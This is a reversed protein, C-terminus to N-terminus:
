KEEEVIFPRSPDKLQHRLYMRQTWGNNGESATIDIDLVYRTITNTITVTNTVYQNARKASSNRSLLHSILAVILMGAVLVVLMALVFGVFKDAERDSM